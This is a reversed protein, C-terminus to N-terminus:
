KLGNYYNELKTIKKNKEENSKILSNIRESQNNNKEKIDKIEDMLMEILEENTLKKEILQIEKDNIKIKKGENIIKYESKILYKYVKKIDQYKKIDLEKIIEEYDYEKKYNYHSFEKIITFLIRGGNLEIRLKYDEIRKEEKIEEYEPEITEQKEEM